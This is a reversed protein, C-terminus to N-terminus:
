SQKACPWAAAFADALIFAAPRHRIGPNERLYRLSVDVLQQAEVESPICFPSKDDGLVAEMFTLGDALGRAYSVCRVFEFSEKKTKRNELSASCMQLWDNGTIAPGAATTTPTSLMAALAAATLTRTIM